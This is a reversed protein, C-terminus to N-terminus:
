VGYRARFAKRLPKEVKRIATLNPLAVLTEIQQRLTDTKHLGLWATIFRYKQRTLAIRNIYKRWTTLRGGDIADRFRDGYIKPNVHLRGSITDWGTAITFDLAIDHTKSSYLQHAMVNRMEHIDGSIHSFKDKKKAGDIFRRLFEHTASPGKLDYVKEMFTQVFGHTVLFLATEYGPKNVLNVQPELENQAWMKMRLFIETEDGELYEKLRTLFPQM